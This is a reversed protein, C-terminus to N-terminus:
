GAILIQARRLNSLGLLLAMREMNKALGRYRVKANGFIRKVDLFPHEVKARISAKAKEQRKEPLIYWQKERDNVWGMLAAILVEILNRGPPDIM